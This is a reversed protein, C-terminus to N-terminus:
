RYKGNKDTTTQIVTGDEEVTISIAVGELKPQTRGTVILGPNGEFPSVEEPCEPILYHFCVPITECSLSIHVILDCALGYKLHQMYACPVFYYM